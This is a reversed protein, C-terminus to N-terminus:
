HKAIGKLKPKVWKPVQQPPATPFSRAGWYDQSLAGVALHRGSRGACCAPSVATGWNKRTFEEGRNRRGGGRKKKLERTPKSADSQKCM